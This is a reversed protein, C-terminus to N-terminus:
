SSPTSNKIKGPTIGFKNKFVKIFHSINEFDSAYAIESITTDTNELLYLSHELRKATALAIAPATPTLPNGATIRLQPPRFSLLGQNAESM